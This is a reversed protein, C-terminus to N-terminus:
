NAQLVAASGHASRLRRLTYSQQPGGRLQDRYQNIRLVEAAAFEDDKECAVEISVEVAMAVAPAITSREGAAPPRLARRYLM